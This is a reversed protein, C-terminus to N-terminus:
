TRKGRRRILPMLDRGMGPFDLKRLLRGLESREKTGLRAPWGHSERLLETLRARDRSSLDGFRRGVVLGGQLLLAWPVAGLRDRPTKPTTKTASKSKTRARTM